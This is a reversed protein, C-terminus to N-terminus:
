VWTLNITPLSKVDPIKKKKVILYPYLEKTLHPMEKCNIYDIPECGNNNKKDITCGLSVLECAISDNKNIVAIHLATNGKIDTADIDIGTDVLMKMINNNERNKVIEHIPYSGTEEDCIKDIEYRRRIAEKILFHTSKSYILYSLKSNLIKGHVEQEICFKLLNYLHVNNFLSNLEDEEYLINRVCKKYDKDEYLTQLSPKYKDKELDPYQGIILDVILKIDFSIIVEKNVHNRTIPSIQNDFYWKM